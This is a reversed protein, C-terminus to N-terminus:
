NVDNYYMEDDSEQHIFSWKAYNYFRINSLLNLKNLVSYDESNIMGDDIKGFIDYFEGDIMVVIDPLSEDMDDKILLEGNFKNALMLSFIFINPHKVESVFGNIFKEVM